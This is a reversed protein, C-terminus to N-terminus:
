EQLRKLEEHYRAVCQMERQVEIGTERGRKNRKQEKWQCQEKRIGRRM